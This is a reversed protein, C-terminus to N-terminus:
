GNTAKVLRLQHGAKRELMPALLVGESGCTPCQANWDISDFYHCDGDNDGGCVAVRAEAISVRMALRPASFPFLWRLLTNM